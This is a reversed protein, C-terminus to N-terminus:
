SRARLDRTPAGQPIRVAAGVVDCLGPRAPAGDARDREGDHARGQPRDGRVPWLWASDIHAHGVAALRHASAHAPSALAPALVERAAYASGVVDDLVLVDLARDNTRVLQWRRESDAPLEHMLQGLVEPDRALDWVDPNFVAVDARALRYLPDM